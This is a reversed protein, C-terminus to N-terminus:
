GPIGAGRLISAYLERAKQVLAANRTSAYEDKIKAKIIERKESPGVHSDRGGFIRTQGQPTHEFVGFRTGFKHNVRHIVSGFDRTVEEFRAVVCSELCPMISQHFRIYRKLHQRVQPEPQESARPYQMRLADLSVICDDPHRILLVTPIKLQVAKIIQAHSHTHHGLRVPRTQASLFARSCFSNASRPFGDIVIDTGADVLNKSFPQGRHRWRQVALYTDPHCELIDRVGARLADYYPFQRLSM